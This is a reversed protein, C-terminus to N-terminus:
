FISANETTHIYLFYNLELRFKQVFSVLGFSLDTIDCLLSSNQNFTPVGGRKVSNYIVITVTRARFHVYCGSYTDYTVSKFRQLKYHFDCCLYRADLLTNAQDIVNRSRVNVSIYNLSNNSKFYEAM